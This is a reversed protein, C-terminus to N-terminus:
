RKKKDERKEGSKKAREPIWVGPAKQARELKRGLEGLARKLCVM